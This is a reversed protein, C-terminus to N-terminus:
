SQHREAASNGFDRRASKQHGAQRDLRPYIRADQKYFAMYQKLTIKVTFLMYSSHAKLFTHREMEYTPYRDDFCMCIEIDQDGPIFSYWNFDKFNLLLSGM